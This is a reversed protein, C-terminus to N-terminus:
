YHFQFIRLFRYISVHWKPWTLRIPWRLDNFHLFQVTILYHFSSSSPRKVYFPCSDTMISRYAKIYQNMLGNHLFPKLQHYKIELFALEYFIRLRMQSLHRHSTQYADRTSLWWVIISFSTFYGTRFLPRECFLFFDAVFFYEFSSLAFPRLPMLDNISLVFRKPTIKGTQVSTCQGISIFFQVNSM